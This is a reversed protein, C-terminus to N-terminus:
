FPVEDDPVDGVPQTSPVTEKTKAGDKLLKGFLANLKRAAANDLPKPPNSESPPLAFDWQESTSGKYESEKCQCRVEHGVLAFDSFNDGDFGAYRLKRMAFDKMKEPDKGGLVLRVSREYNEICPEYDDNGEPDKTIKSMVRINFVLMPKPPVTKSEEFGQALVECLYTGPEYYAAM